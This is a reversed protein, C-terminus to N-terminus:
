KRLEGKATEIALWTLGAFAGIFSLGTVSIQDPNIIQWGVSGFFACGFWLAATVSALFRGMSGPIGMDRDISKKALAKQASAMRHLANTSELSQAHAVSALEAFAERLEDEDMENISEGRWACESPSFWRDVKINPPIDQKAM